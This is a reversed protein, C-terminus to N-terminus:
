PRVLSLFDKSIDLLMAEIAAVGVSGISPNAAVGSGSLSPKDSNLAM